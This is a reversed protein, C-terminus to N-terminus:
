DQLVAIKKNAKSIRAIVGFGTPLPPSSYTSSPSNWPTLVHIFPLYISLFALNFCLNVTNSPCKVRM